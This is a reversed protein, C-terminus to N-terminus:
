ARIKVAALLHPSGQPLNTNAPNYFPVLNNSKSSLDVLASGDSNWVTVPTNGPGLLGTPCSADWWDTM